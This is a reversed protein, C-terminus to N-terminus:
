DALRGLRLLYGQLNSIKKPLMALDIQSQITRVASAAGKWRQKVQLGHLNPRHAFEPPPAAFCTPIKLVKNWANVRSPTRANLVSSTNDQIEMSTFRRVTEVCHWVSMFMADMDQVFSVWKQQFMENTSNRWFRWQKELIVLEGKDFPHLAWPLLHYKKYQEKTARLTQLEKRGGNTTFGTPVTFTFCGWLQVTRMWPEVSWAIACIFSFTSLVKVKQCNWVEKNKSM